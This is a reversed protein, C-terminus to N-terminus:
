PAGRMQRFAALARNEAAIRIALVVANLVTFLAALQPLGLMLPLTAIEGAVVAYNPHSLFLYPGASVLPVWRTASKQRPSARQYM